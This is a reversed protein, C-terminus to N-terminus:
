WTLGTGSNRDALFAYQSLEYLGALLWAAFARKTRGLVQKGFIIAGPQM